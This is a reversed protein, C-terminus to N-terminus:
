TWANGSKINFVHLVLKCVIDRQPTHRLMHNVQKMALWIGLGPPLARVM